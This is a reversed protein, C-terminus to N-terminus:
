KAEAPRDVSTSILEWVATLAVGTALAVASELCYKGVATLLLMFLARGVRYGWKHSFLVAQVGSMPAAAPTAPAPAAQTTPPALAATSPSLAERPQFLPDSPTPVIFVVRCSGCQATQGAFRDEVLNVAPCNLCSVRIAM